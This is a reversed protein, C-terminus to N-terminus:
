SRCSTLCCCSLMGVGGEGAGTITTNTTERVALAYDTYAKMQQFQIMLMCLGYCGVYRGAIM